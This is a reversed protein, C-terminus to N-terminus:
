LTDRIRIRGVVMATAVDTAWRAPCCAYSSSRVAARSARVQYAVDDASAVPRGTAVNWANLEHVGHAFNCGAASRCAGTLSFHRCLM